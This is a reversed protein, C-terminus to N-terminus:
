GGLHKTKSIRNDFDEKVRARRIETQISEYIKKAKNYDRVKEFQAYTRSYWREFVIVCPLIIVATFIGIAFKREPIYYSAIFGAIFGGAVSIVFEWERL